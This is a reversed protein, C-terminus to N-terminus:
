LVDEVRYGDDDNSAGARIGGAANVLDTTTWVGHASYFYVIGQRKLCREVAPQTRYGTLRRLDDYALVSM